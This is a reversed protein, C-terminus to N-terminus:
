TFAVMPSTLATPSSFPTSYPSSVGTDMSSCFSSSVSFFRCPPSCPPSLPSLPSLHRRKDEQEKEFELLQHMFGANPSIESRRSKVFEFATDLSAHRSYMVYAICITASRSVGAHCHVLTKGGAGKVEDIFTIADSFWNSLLTNHSDDVPINKYLFNSTFHNKCTSSVNLIATIGLRQLDQMCAATLANGLYLHPFIEVPEMLTSNTRFLAHRQSKEQASPEAQPTLIPNSGVITCQRPFSQMFQAFGGKLLKCIGGFGLQKISHWVINMNSDTHVLEDESDGYIVIQSYGGSVLRHRVDSDLMKELHLKGGNVFRRKSIPPCYMNKAGVIHGDNYSIYPRSDLILLSTSNNFNYHVILHHFDSLSITEM